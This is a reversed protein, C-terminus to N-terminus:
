KGPLVTWYVKVARRRVDNVKYDRISPHPLEEERRQPLYRCPVGPCIGANGKSRFFVVSAARLGSIEKNVMSAPTTQVHM